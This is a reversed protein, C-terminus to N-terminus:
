SKNYAANTAKKLAGFHDRHRQVAAMAQLRVSDKHQELHKRIEDESVPLISPLNGDILRGAGPSGSATGMAAAAAATSIQLGDRLQNEIRRVEELFYVKNRRPSKACSSTKCPSVLISTTTQHLCCASGPCFTVRGSLFFVLVLIYIPLKTHKPWNHNPTSRCFCPFIPILSAKPTNLLRWFRFHSSRGFITPQGSSM